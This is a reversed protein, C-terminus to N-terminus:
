LIIFFIFIKFRINFLEKEKNNINKIYIIQKEYLGFFNLIMNFFSTIIFSYAMKPLQYTFDFSGDDLYIKHMTSNSYFMASVAYNISFTLFFIYIKIMQSNYDKYQFFTFILIHKTKLLSLYYQWYTRKDLNIADKYNLSNMEFDNYSKNKGNNNETRKQNLNGKKLNANISKLFNKSNNRNSQGNLKIDKIIRKKSKIKRNNPKNLPIKNVKISKSNLNISKIKNNQIINEKKIRKTIININKKNNKNGINNNLSKKQKNKQNNFTEIINKKKFTKKSNSKQKMLQNIYIKIKLNDHFVFVFIAIVSLSLLTAIIYNSSNKFINKIDFLLNICSLMKYNAINRIDKFNSFLKEKDVKIESILPLKLKAYCSCIAKRAENDYETFDCDEECVSINSNKYENQRDELTKDAGSQNKLTYCIDNYLASSINYKDKEDAPIDMPIIIDVKINKCFSLNLQTLNNSSFPYYVEYEIKLLNDIWADIKLIYLSDNKSINYKDKLETECDLLDITTVNKNRNDKQNKTTSITFTYQGEKQIYDNGNNIDITNFEYLLKKRINNLKEDLITLNKNDKSIYSTNRVDYVDINDNHLFLDNDLDHLM